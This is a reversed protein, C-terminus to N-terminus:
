SQSFYEELNVIAEDWGIEESLIPNTDNMETNNEKKKNCRSKAPDQCAIKSAELITMKVIRSVRM